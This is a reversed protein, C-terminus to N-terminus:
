INIGEKENDNYQGPGPFNKKELDEMILNVRSGFKM